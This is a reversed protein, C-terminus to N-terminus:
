FMSQSSVVSSNLLPLHDAIVETMLRKQCTASIKLGAVHGWFLHNISGPAWWKPQQNLKSASLCSCIGATGLLWQLKVNQLTIVGTALKGPDVM